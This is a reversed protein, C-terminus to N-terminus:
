GRNSRDTEFACLYICEYKLPRWLREIMVNDMWRGKGDMSICIDPHKQLGEELAETCFDAEITNSLRWSLSGQPNGLGHDDSPLSLGQAHPYLQHRRWVKNSRDIIMGQLLYPYIKHQKNPLSTKPKQYIASLSIQKMLRSILTRSVAYGERRLHRTM